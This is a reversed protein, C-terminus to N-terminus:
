RYRCDMNDTVEFSRSHRLSPRGASDRRYRLKVNRVARRLGLVFGTTIRTSNTKNGVVSLILPKFIVHGATTEPIHLM